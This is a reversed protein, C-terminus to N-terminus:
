ASPLWVVCVTGGGERDNLQVRGGMRQVHEQVLQLGFGQGREGATGLQSPLAGEQGIRQRVHVPLGPGPDSIM